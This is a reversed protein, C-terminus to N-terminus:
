TVASYPTPQLISAEVRAVIPGDKESAARAAIWEPDSAFANWRAEREALNRWALLYTLKANCNDGIYDTFFGAQRIGHKEWLPLTTEAFRAHLAPLRGAVCHYVRLEYLM